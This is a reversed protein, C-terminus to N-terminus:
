KCEHNIQNDVLIKDIDIALITQDLPLVIGMPLSKEKLTNYTVWTLPDTSSAMAGNLMFPLKTKKGGKNVLKWTVWMPLHGFKEVLPNM